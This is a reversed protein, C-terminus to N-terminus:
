KQLVKLAEQENDHNIFFKDLKTIKFVQYLTPPMRCIAIKGGGKCISTQLRVLAGLSASSLRKVRSFDLIMRAPNQTRAETLLANSLRDIAADDLIEEALILAVVANDLYDVSIIPEQKEM